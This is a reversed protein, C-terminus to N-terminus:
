PLPLRWGALYVYTQAFQLHADPPNSVTHFGECLSYKGDDDLQVWAHAVAIDGVHHVLAIIRSWTKGDDNGPNGVEVDQGWTPRGYLANPPTGTTDNQLYVGIYVESIGPPQLASLDFDNWNPSLASNDIDIAATVGAHESAVLRVEGTQPIHIFDCVNGASDTLVLFLIGSAIDYGSPLLPTDSASAIGVTYETLVKNKDYIGFCRYWTDPQVKGTDLGGAGSDGLDINLSLNSLQYTDTGDSLFLQDMEMIIDTEPSIASQYVYLGRVQGATFGELDDMREQLATIAQERELDAALDENLFDTIRRLEALTKAFSDLAPQGTGGYQMSSEAPYAYVYSM